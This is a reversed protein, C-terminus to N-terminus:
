FKAKLFNTLAAQFEAPKEIHSIHGSGPILVLQGNPLDKV